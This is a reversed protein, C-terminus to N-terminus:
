FCAAVRCCAAFRRRDGSPERWEIEIEAVSYVLMAPVTFHATGGSQECPLPGTSVDPDPSLLRVTKVRAGEPLPLTVKIKEVRLPKEDQQSM